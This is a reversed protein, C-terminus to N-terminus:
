SARRCPRKAPSRRRRDRLWAALERRAIWLASGIAVLGCLVIAFVLRSEELEPGAPPTM